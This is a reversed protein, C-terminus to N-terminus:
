DFAGIGFGEIVFVMSLILLHLIVVLVNIRRGLDVAVPMDDKVSLVEFIVTNYVSQNLTVTLNSLLFVM